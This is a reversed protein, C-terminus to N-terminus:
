TPARRVHLKRALAECAKARIAPNPKHSKSYETGTRRLRVECHADNADIPDDTALFEYPAADARAEGIFIFSISDSRSRVIRDARDGLQNVVGEVTGASLFCRESVQGQFEDLKSVDGGLRPERVSVLYNDVVNTTVLQKVLAKTLFSSNAEM